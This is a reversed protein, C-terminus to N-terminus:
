RSEPDDVGGQGDKVNVNDRLACLFSGFRGGRRGQGWFAGVVVLDFSEGLEDMYDTRIMLRSSAFFPHPPVSRTQSQDM